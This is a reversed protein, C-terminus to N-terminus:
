WIGSKRQLLAEGYKRVLVSSKLLYMYDEEVRGKEVKYVLNDNVFYYEVYGYRESKKNAAYRLHIKFWLLKNDSYFYHIWKVPIQGKPREYVLAVLLEHSKKGYAFFLTASDNSEKLDKYKKFKAKWAKQISDKIQQSQSFGSISNLLVFIAIYYKRM